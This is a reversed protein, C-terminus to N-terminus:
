PIFQRAVIGLVIGADAHERGVISTIAAAVLLLLLPNELQRGLVVLPRAGDSRM